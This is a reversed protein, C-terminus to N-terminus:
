PYPMYIECIRHVSVLRAAFRIHDIHLAIPRVRAGVPKHQQCARGPPCTDSTLRLKPIPHTGSTRLYGSIGSPNISAEPPKRHLSDCTQQQNTTNLQLSWRWEQQFWRILSPGAPGTFGQLAGQLESAQEGPVGHCGFHLAGDSIYKSSYVHTLWTFIFETMNTHLRCLGHACSVPAAVHTLNFHHSSIAPASLEDAVLAAQM